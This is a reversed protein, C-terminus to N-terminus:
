STEDIFDEVIRACQVGHTLMLAHSGDSVVVRKLDPNLKVLQASNQPLVVDHAAIIHLLPLSLQQYVYQLDTDFLAPLLAGLRSADRYLCTQMINFYDAAYCPFLSRRMFRDMTADFDCQFQHIFQQSRLVPIAKLQDCERFCPQSCLLILREIKYPLLAALYIAILGGFSWAIVTAGATIKHRLANALQVITNGPLNHYHLLHCNLHSLKSANVIDANFAWGSIFYCNQKM